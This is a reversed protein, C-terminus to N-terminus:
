PCSRKMLFLSTWSIKPFSLGPNRIGLNPHLAEQSQSWQLVQEWMVWVAPLFLPFWVCLASVICRLNYRIGHVRRAKPVVCPVAIDYTNNKRTLAALSHISHTRQKCKYGVNTTHLTGTTDTGEMQFSELAHRHTKYFPTITSNSHYFIVNQNDTSYQTSDPCSMRKRYGLSANHCGNADIKSLVEFDM